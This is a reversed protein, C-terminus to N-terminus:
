SGGSASASASASGSSGGGGGGAAATPRAPREALGPGLRIGSSARKLKGEVHIKRGKSFDVVKNGIQIKTRSGIQAAYAEHDNEGTAASVCNLFIQKSLRWLAYEAGAHMPRREVLTLIHKKDPSLVGITFYGGPSYGFPDFTDYYGSSILVRRGDAIIQKLSSGEDSRYVVLERAENHLEWGEDPGDFTKNYVTVEGVPCLWSFADYRIGPSEM